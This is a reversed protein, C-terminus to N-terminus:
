KILLSKFKNKVGEMYAIPNYMDYDAVQGLSFNILIKKKKRKIYM